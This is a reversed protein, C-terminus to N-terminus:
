LGLVEREEPSLKAAASKRLAERQKAKAESEKREADARQHDEYWNALKRSMPDRGNYVFENLEDESLEALCACLDAVYDSKCYEDKAAKRIDHRAEIGKKALLWEYLQATERLKMEYLTPRMYDSNCPM